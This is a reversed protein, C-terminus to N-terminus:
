EKKTSNVQHIYNKGLEVNIIYSIYFM